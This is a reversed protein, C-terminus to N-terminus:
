CRAIEEEQEHNSTENLKNARVFKERQGEVVEVVKELNNFQNRFELSKWALELLQDARALRDVPTISKGIRFVNSLDIELGRFQEELATLLKKFNRVSSM